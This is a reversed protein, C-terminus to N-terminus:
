KGFFVTVVSLGLKDILNILTMSIIWLWVVVILFLCLCIFITDKEYIM